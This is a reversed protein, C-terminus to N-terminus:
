LLTLIHFSDQVHIMGTLLHFESEFGNVLSSCIRNYM